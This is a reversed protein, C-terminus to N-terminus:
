PQRTECRRIHRQQAVRGSPVVSYHDDAATDVLMDIHSNGRSLVRPFGVNIDPGVCPSLSVSLVDVSGDDVRLAGVSACVASMDVNEDRSPNASSSRRTAGCTDPPPGLDVIGRNAIPAVLPALPSRNWFPPCETSSRPM